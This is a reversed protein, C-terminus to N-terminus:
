QSHGRTPNEFWIVGLGRSDPGYNEECTIVDLDGDADLDLLEVRDYKYGVTGSINMWAMERLSLWMVGSKGEVRLTNTTHVIDPVGDLDLDGVRLAKGRGTSTPISIQENEWKLGQEDVRRCIIIQENTTSTLADVWGDGDVDALDIFMVELGQAGIFHNAWPQSKGLLDNPQELWRMGQTAGPKRDSTVVDLDGDGDMDSLMLSMVWTAESVVHWRWGSLDRADSPAEFWGIAAEDGKGGAIIDVGNKGDVQLAIAFMWQMLGDSVPIVETKWQSSDLCDQPDSPGWSIFLRRETGETSSIVDMSGDGDLDAFVADEVSPTEAIAASPWLGKVGRAGPHLYIKTFGGEEWGTAIDMRGDGNIDAVRVGDAGSSSSDIVHLKWPRSASQAVCLTTVIFMSLFLCLREVKLGTSSLLTTTGKM